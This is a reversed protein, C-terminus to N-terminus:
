WTYFMFVYVYIFIYLVHFRCIHSLCTCFIFIYLVHLWFMFGGISRGRKTMCWFFTLFCGILLIHMFLIYVHMYAYMFEFIEEGKQWNMLLPALSFCDITMDDFRLFWFKLWCFLNQHRHSVLQFILFKSVVQFNQYFYQYWNFFYIDITFISDLQLYFGFKQYVSFDNQLLSVLNNSYYWNLIMSLLISFTLM